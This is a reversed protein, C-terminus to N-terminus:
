AKELYNILARSRIDIRFSDIQNIDKIYSDIQNTEEDMDYCALIIEGEDIFDFSISTVNSKGSSDAVQFINRPNYVIKYSQKKGQKADRFLDSIDLALTDLDNNCEKSDYKKKEIVGILIEIIFSDDESKYSIQFWDYIGKGDLLSTSYEKHNYNHWDLENDELQTTSFYDLASDGIKIGEIQFDKIEKAFSTNFILISLAAISLFFNM